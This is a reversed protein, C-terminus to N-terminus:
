GVRDFNSRMYVCVCVYIHLSASKDNHIHIHGIQSEVVRGQVHPTEIYPKTRIRAVHEERRTRDCTIQAMKKMINVHIAMDMKGTM